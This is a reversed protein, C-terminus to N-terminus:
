WSFPRDDSEPTLPEVGAQEPKATAAGCVSLLLDRIGDSHTFQVLSVQGAGPRRNPSLERLRRWAHQMTQRMFSQDTTEDVVLVIHRLPVLNFIENIEFVRGANQQSFGRLDMLVADSEDALRALTLKWTDDHCFFETVRFQGEGDPELDMQGIRLDLTRGSDIFRRDLKGTVFDLFEHPEITSTALDPGAIMQMSGVTRWSKGLTDYLNESRKGLAFVRLLLLRHGNSKARRAIGLARFLGAAVLKYLTFAALGSFIWLRGEFVLGISNVIGFLLWMADVIISQESVCKKEYLSRLLGLVLWGIIAFAAFGILHLAVMTGFAGLGISHSFDSVAKLLKLNKGALTVVFSAGTVGLIMFVLVLPGLARIRRNLFILLLITPVANFELWLYLLQGVPLGPNKALVITGIVSGILFYVLAEVLKGRRSLGIALDIAMLVPWANVWTLFMFRSPSFSLKGASLFAATMAAAFCCGAVTHVFAILWRRRNASRYLAAADRSARAAARTVFSFNLPADNPKHESEQPLFGKPELIESRSRRRMSKVVARRYFHLLLFSAALALVASVILIFSLQGTLAVTLADSRQSM